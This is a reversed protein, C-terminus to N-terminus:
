PTVVGFPHMDAVVARHPEFLPPWPIENAFRATEQDVEALAALARHLPHGTPLGPALATASVLLEAAERILKNITGPKAPLTATSM